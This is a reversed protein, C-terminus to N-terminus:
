RGTPRPADGASAPRAAGSGLSVLVRMGARWGTDANAVHLKVKLTQSAADAVPSVYVITGRRPMAGPGDPMVEAVGGIQIAPVLELPCDVTVVLPDLQVLRVIGERDEVTEGPQRLHEVVFGAFPARIEYEDLLSQQLAAERAAQEQRFRARAVDVEALAVEIRATTLEYTSAAGVGVTQLHDRATRAQELRLLALEVELESRAQADALEFRHRQVDGDLRVVTAGTEVRAGEDVLIAEIRGTCTSGLVVNRLPATFGTIVSSAASAPPAPTAVHDAGAQGLAAIALVALTVLATHQIPRVRM